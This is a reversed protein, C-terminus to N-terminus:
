FLIQIKTYLVLLRYRLDKAKRYVQVEKFSKQKIVTQFDLYIKNYAAIFSLRKTNNNISSNVM